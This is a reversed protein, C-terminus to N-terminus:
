LVRGGHRSIATCKGSPTASQSSQSRKYGRRFALNWMTSSTTFSRQIFSSTQPRLFYWKILEVAEFQRRYFIYINIYM